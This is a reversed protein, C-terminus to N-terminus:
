RSRSASQSKGPAPGNAAAQAPSPTLIISKSSSMITADSGIPALAPPQFVVGGKSSSMSPSRADSTTEALPVFSVAASKSGSMITLNPDYAGITSSEVAAGHFPSDTPSGDFPDKDFTPNDSSSVRSPTTEARWHFANARYGVFGGVLLISSALATVKFFPHPQSM